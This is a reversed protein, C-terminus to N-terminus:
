FFDIMFPAPGAFAAGLRAVDADEGGVLGIARLQAPSALGSYISALANITLCVSREAASAGGAPRIEGRGDAVELTWRGANEPLVKDAIEVHVKVSVGPAFGRAAIASPLHVIRLMWYDKFEFALRQQELLLVLPHWPGGPILVREGMSAFDHLFAWIARAGEAATFAVDHLTLDMKGSPTRGQSVAVAAQPAGGERESWVYMVAQKDRMSWVRSWILGNRELPGNHAAAYQRYLPELAVREEAPLVRWHGLRQRVDIQAIPLSLVGRHGAQEYGVQRYLSQTSAYLCSLGTGQGHLERLAETMIRRALGQGRAEPAVAVGAIGGMPVVRGGFYQGMPIIRLCADPRDPQDAPALTRQLAGGGTASRVWTECDAISGGFALSLLEATRAVASDPVDTHYMLAAM